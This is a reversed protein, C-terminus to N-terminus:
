QRILPSLAEEFSAEESGVLVAVEEKSLTQKKRGATAVVKLPENTELLRKLEAMAVDAELYVIEDEEQAKSLTMMDGEISIKALWGNSEEEDEADSM